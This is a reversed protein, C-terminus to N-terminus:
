NPGKKLKTSQVSYNPGSETPKPSQTRIDKLPNNVATLSIIMDLATRSQVFMSGITPSSSCGHSCFLGGYLEQQWIQTYFAQHNYCPTQQEKNGTDVNMMVLM